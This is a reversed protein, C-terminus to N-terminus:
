NGTGYVDTYCVANADSHSLPTTGQNTATMTKMCDDYKAAKSEGCGTLMALSVAVVLVIGAARKM